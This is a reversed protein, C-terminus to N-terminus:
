RRYVVNGSVADITLTTRVVHEMCALLTDDMSPGLIDTTRDNLWTDVVADIVANADM